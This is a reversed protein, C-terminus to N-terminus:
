FDPNPNPYVVLGSVHTDQKNAVGPAFQPDTRFLDRAYGSPDQGVMNRMSGGMERNVQVLSVAVMLSAAMAMATAPIWGNFHDRRRPIDKLVMAMRPWLSSGTGADVSSVTSISQLADLSLQLQQRQQSCSECKSLHAQLAEAESADALDRGIWLPLLRNAERCNMIVVRIEQM